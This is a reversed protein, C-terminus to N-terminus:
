IPMGLKPKVYCTCTIRFEELIYVPQTHTYKITLHYQIVSGEGDLFTTQKYLFRDVNPCEYVSVVSYTM